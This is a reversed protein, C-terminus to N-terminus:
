ADDDDEDVTEDVDELATLALEEAYRTDGVELAELILTALQRVTM